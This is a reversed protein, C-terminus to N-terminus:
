DISGELRHHVTPLAFPNPICHEGLCYGIYMGASSLTKKTYGATNSIQLGMFMAYGSSFAPLIYIAFLLGGTQQVPLLWLLLSAAVTVMMAVVFLYTRINSFKSALYGLILMMICGSAGSPMKLLLSNLGSFGMGEIIIPIFSSMPGNPIQSLFSIAFVTWFKLDLLLEHVQAGKLHINRVGANNTRLRAVLIYRERDTLGRARIPDPPLVWWILVGWAITLAGAFYYMYRWSSVGGNIQGFGWNALPSLM